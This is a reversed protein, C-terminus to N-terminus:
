FNFMSNGYSGAVGRGPACAFDASFDIDMCFCVDLHECACFLFLM